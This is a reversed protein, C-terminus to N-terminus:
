KLHEHNPGSWNTSRKLNKGFRSNQTRLWRLRKQSQLLPNLVDTDTQTCSICFIWFCEHYYFTYFTRYDHDNM